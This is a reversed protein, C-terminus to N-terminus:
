IAVGACHRAGLFAAYASEFEKAPPGLIFSTKDFVAAFGRGIEDAIAQHQLRLDVPPVGSM